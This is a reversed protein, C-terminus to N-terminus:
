GPTRPVTLWRRWRLSTSRLADRCKWALVLLGVLMAAVLVLLAVVYEMGPHRPAAQVVRVFGHVLSRIGDFMNAMELSLLLALTYFPGPRTEAVRIIAPAGREEAWTSRLALLITVIAIAAGGVIDTLYHLGLYIRPVCVWVAAVMMLSIGAFRSLCAIGFSLGFFYAATDSPFASWNELNPSIPVAYLHHPLATNYM